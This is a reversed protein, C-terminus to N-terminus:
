CDQSDQGQSASGFVGLRLKSGALSLNERFSLVLELVQVLVALNIRILIPTQRHFITNGVQNGFHREFLLDTQHEM